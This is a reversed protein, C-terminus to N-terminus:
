KLNISSKEICLIWVCVNTCVHLEIYVDIVARYMYMCIAM